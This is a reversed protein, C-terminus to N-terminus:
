PLNVQSEWVSWEDQPIEYYDTQLDFQHQDELFDGCQFYVTGRVGWKPSRTPLPAMNKGNTRIDLTYPKDPQITLAEVTSADWRVLIGNSTENDPARWTIREVETDDWLITANYGVIDVPIPRTNRLYIPYSVRWPTYAKQLGLSGRRRGEIFIHALADQHDQKPEDLAQVDSHQNGSDEVKASDDPDSGSASSVPQPPRAWWLGFLLVLLGIVPFVLQYISTLSALNMTASETTENSYRDYLSFWADIASPGTIFLFGFLVLVTKRTVM